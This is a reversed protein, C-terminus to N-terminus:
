KDRRSVSQAVYPHAVNKKVAVHYEVSHICRMNLFISQKYFAITMIKCFQMVPSDYHRENVRGRVVKSLKLGLM